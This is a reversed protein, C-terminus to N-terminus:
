KPERRVYVIVPGDSLQCYFQKDQSKLDRTAKCNQPKMHLIIQENETKPFIIQTVASVLHLYNYM